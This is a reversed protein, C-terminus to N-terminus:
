YEYEIDAEQHVLFEVGCFDCEFKHGSPNDIFGDNLEGCVPCHVMVKTAILCTVVPTDDSSETM